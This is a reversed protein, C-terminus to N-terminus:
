LRGLAGTYRLGTAGHVFYSRVALDGWFGCSGPVPTESSPVMFPRQRWVRSLRRGHRLLRQWAQCFTTASLAIGGLSLAIVVLDLLPRRNYLFPFDLSHLGHYLWRNLRTLREEKLIPRNAGSRPRTSGPRSLTTSAYAYCRCPDRAQGDTTTGDYEELWATDLVGVGPMAAHAADLVREREFSTFVGEEPTVASVLRREARALLFPEGQFQVVELEKPGVAGAMTSAAHRIRDLTMMGLRLPGGSVATRQAATPSNSPHWNWPDLSLAGSLTWTFTTLGFVLGAYHHWRMLGAYPTQSRHRRLRYRQGPSWRWLGWALGSLCLVCGVISLWSVSQVWIAGHRRFPTFYLWHVVAGVYALGRTWRSTKMVPEGTRDSLYLHTDGADGLAVKHLPLFQKARFRGRTPRVCDLRMACPHRTSPTGRPAAAMAEDATLRELREGEDAFVTMTLGREVFRYVPRDGLMAIWLRDPSLGHRRAAEAPTVRAASLDIPPLRELREEVSLTPMGAYMLVIGSVFWAM